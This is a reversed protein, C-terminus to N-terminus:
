RLGTQSCAIYFNSRFAKKPNKLIINESNVIGSQYHKPFVRLEYIITIRLGSVSGILPACLAEWYYDVRGCLGVVLFPMARPTGQM